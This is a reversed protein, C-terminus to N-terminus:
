GVPTPLPRGAFHALLNDIFLEGMAARTQHTASGTHPMLVVNDLATLTAPVHPEREFVDLGAAAITGAALAAALATEDVISGRAINILTGEPGLAALVKPGVLHRTAAGGTAAVVLIDSWRALEALEAFFPYPADPKQRPGTYAISMGFPTSREAIARGIRGLGVIGLRRGRLARGFRLEGALWDGRRVFRDGEAIRREVALILAMATDATDETVVDPTNTVRIGRARAAAVDIADVGIGLCAIIEARPLAAILAAPCGHLAYVAIARARDALGRLFADRDAAEWLRHVEFLEDLRAQTPPYLPGVLVIPPKM